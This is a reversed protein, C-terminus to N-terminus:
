QDLVSFLTPLDIEIPTRALNIKGHRHESTSDERLIHATRTEPDFIWVEPVGMRLYDQARTIERDPQPDTRLYEEVSLFPVTASAVM